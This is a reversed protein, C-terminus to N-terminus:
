KTFFKKLDFQSFSTNIFFGMAARCEGKELADKKRKLSELKEKYDREVIAQFTNMLINHSETM